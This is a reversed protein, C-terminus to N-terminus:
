VPGCMRTRSPPSPSSSAPIAGDLELAVRSCSRPDIAREMAEIVTQRYRTSSGSWVYVLPDDAVGDDDTDALSGTREAIDTMRDTDGTDYFLVSILTAGLDVVAAPGSRLPM